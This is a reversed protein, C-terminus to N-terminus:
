ERWFSNGLGSLPGTWGAVKGEESVYEEVDFRKDLDQEGSWLKQSHFIVAEDPLTEGYLFPPHFGSLQRAQRSCVLKVTSRKDLTKVLSLFVDRLQVIRNLNNATTHRSFINSVDKIDLGGPKTHLRLHSFPTASSIASVFAPLHQWTEYDYGLGTLGLTRLNPPALQKDLLVEALNSRHDVDLTHLRNFPSLGSSSQHLSSLASFLSANLHEPSGRAPRNIPRHTYRLYELSDSHQQIATIFAPAHVQQANLRYFETDLLVTFSRLARPRSLVAQFDELRSSPVKCRQLILTELPTRTSQSELGLAAFTETAGSIDICSLHLHKLTPSLFVPLVTKINYFRNNTGHSHLTFSTLCELAGAQWVGSAANRAFLDMYGVMIEDSWWSPRRGTNIMPSEVKLSKLRALRSILEPMLAIGDWSHMTPTVELHEVARMREPPQELSQALRSVTPGDHIYINKFLQAEAFPQLKSCTQALTLLTPRDDVASAIADILENPLSFIPFM